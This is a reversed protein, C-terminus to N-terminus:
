GIITSPGQVGRNKNDKMGPIIVIGDDIFDDIRGMDDDPIQVDLDTAPAFPINGNLDSKEGLIKINPHRLRISLIYHILRSLLCGGYYLPNLDERIVRKNVSEGVSAEFSQDHTLRYKTHFFRSNNTM